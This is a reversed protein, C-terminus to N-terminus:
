AAGQAVAEARIATGRCNDCERCRDVGTEGLAELLVATRCLATQAYVVMQELKTQDRQRRENYAAAVREASDVFLRPTVEFRPGRRERILGAQKLVALMVRTKGASVAPAASRIDDFSLTGRESVPRLGDILSIFDAATPYRGAMFFTQLARDARQFLLICQAPLGDRGARGSEQSYVDLSAPLDYHIVARIDPRDIGMGFANTAVILPVGGNMFADQAAARDSARMRGHYSVASVGEQRLLAHIQEVHKVTAAYVIAAGDLERVLKVLQRQKDTDNTVPRVLYSLNPRHAGTNVIHLQGLNLQETIDDIVEPPATATLALVTPKGLARMAGLAELYAPRFGHGWQTICHAEDIVLLDVHADALLTRFQESALQEPTTFVFEVTRRGINKRARRVEDRPVASNVQVSAIGLDSMKEFQDQMLAILPSVVVTTGPMLMAPVQYCLSKGAGTPMIALTHRGALVADIVAQQGPRLGSLGFVKKVIHAIRRRRDTASM